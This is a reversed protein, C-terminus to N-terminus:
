RRATLSARLQTTQTSGSSGTVTVKVSGKRAGELRRRAAASLQISLHRTGAPVRRAPSVLTITRAARAPTAAVHVVVTITLRTAASAVHVTVAVGSAALRAFTTRKALKLGSIAAPKAVSYALTASSTLGAGNTATATVVHPGIAASYGAVGCAAIGSNPDAAGCAIAAAKPLSAATYTTAQIGTIVPASPPTSDRKITVPLSATGGASTASCALQSIGDGASAPGCGTPAVVPSEGDAVTWTVSVPGRYWGDPGDPAPPSITATIAPPTPDLGMALAADARLFGAGCDIDPNGAAPCDTANAPSTMIAYLEDISMAPKASLILAAIGAAAPAAASTGYFPAFGPVSTSVGDPAALSPRQRVEPAALARGNIDFLRMVPGRSSFSEPTAPTGFPSAAVALAGRSSAGDPAISGSNAGREITTTGAGNTFDIYKLLPSATGSVRRIAIGFAITGSSASVPVVEEPLGGVINDDDVTYAFSPVGGSFSYVDVAFDTAARGWPEAWQLVVYTAPQGATVTGVTQVADVAPGPDFDETAGGTYTGEWGQRGDNGASILYAVGAAKARDVAESVDSDQFFPETFYSTDDAIVKVGSSVLDAITQAKEVPGGDASGFVIRSLGPAEDYVIEAMARGEDTGSSALPGVQTVDAPLDGTGQSGAVGGGAADISDSIIGVAVGAGNPGLLRAAAPGHAIADGQSTVSGTAARTLPAAIARTTALAAAVPLAAPALYGEVVRQPGGASTAIIRMGATRLADAAGAVDGTVYVDVLADGQPSTTVGQREAALRAADASGSGLRGAAVDQLRGDLKDLYRYRVPSLSAGRGGVDQVLEASLAGPDPLAAIEGPTHAAAAPVGIALLAAPLALGARRLRSLPGTV